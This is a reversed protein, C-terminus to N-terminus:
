DDADDPDTTTYADFDVNLGLRSMQHLQTATLHLGVNHGARCEVCQLTLEFDSQLDRVSRCRRHLWLLLEDIHRELPESRDLGSDLRWEHSGWVYGNAPNREGARRVSSPQLGVARTVDELDGVGWATFYAYSGPTM